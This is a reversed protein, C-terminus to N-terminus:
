TYTRRKCMLSPGLHKSNCDKREEILHMYMARMKACPLKFVILRKKHAKEVCLTSGVFTIQISTNMSYRVLLIEVVHNYV